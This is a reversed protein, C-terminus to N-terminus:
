PRYQCVLNAIDVILVLFRSLYVSFGLRGQNLQWERYGAMFCILDITVFFFCGSGCRALIKHFDYWIKDLALGRHLFALGHVIETEHNSQCIQWWWFALVNMYSGRVSVWTHMIIMCEFSVFRSLEVYFRRWRVSSRSCILAETLHFWSLRCWDNVCLQFVAMTIVSICIVSPNERRWLKLSRPQPHRTKGILERAQRM